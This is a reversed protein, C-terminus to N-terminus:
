KLLLAKQQLMQNGAQLRIIYIGAPIRSGDWVVSNAGAPCEGDALRMVERGTVDLVTLRIHSAAALSYRVTALSNFPNPLPASLNFVSPQPSIVEGAANPDIVRVQWEIREVEQDRSASVVVSHEGSEDFVIEISDEGGIVQDDLLWTYDIPLEPEYAFALFWVASDLAVYLTEGEVEPIVWDILSRVEVTWAVFDSYEFEGRYATAELSHRGNEAFAYSLASDEGVVVRGDMLWRYQVPEESPAALVTLSYDAEVNRRRQLALTDPEFSEIYLEVAHVAWEIETSGRGNAVICKVAYDAVDEFIIDVSDIVAITDGNLTWTYALSDEQPNTATVSFHITDSRLCTFELLEPEHSIIQPRPNAIKVLVVDVGRDQVNQSAYGAIFIDGAENAIVSSYEDAHGQEHDQEGDNDDYSRWLEGGDNSIRVVAPAWIGAQGVAVFGENAVKSICRSVIDPMRDDEGM